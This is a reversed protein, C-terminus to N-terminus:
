SILFFKYGSLDGRACALFMMAFSITVINRIYKKSETKDSIRFCNLMLPVALLTIPVVFRHFITYSNFCVLTFGSLILLYRVANKHAKLQEPDSGYLYLVSYIVIIFGASALIYEWVNSYLDSTTYQKALFLGRKILESGFCVQAAIVCSIEAARIMLDVASKKPEFLMCILRIGIPLISAIHFLSGIFYLPLANIFKKDRYYEDYVGRVVFSLSVMCRIGAIVELFRGSSMIFLLLVAVGRNSNNKNNAECKLLYFVNSYFLVACLMPLLGEIGIRRWLYLLLMSLPSDSSIIFNKLAYSFDCSMWLPSLAKWRMIDTNPGPIYFFAMVALVAIYKNLHKSVASASDANRIKKYFFNLVLVYVGVGVLREILMKSQIFEFLSDM